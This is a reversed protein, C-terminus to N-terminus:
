EGKGSFAVAVAKKAESHSFGNARLRRELARKEEAIRKKPAFVLAVRETLTKM